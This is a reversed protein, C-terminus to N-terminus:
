AIQFFRKYDIASKKLYIYYYISGGDRERRGKGRGSIVINNVL